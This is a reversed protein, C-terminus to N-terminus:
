LPGVALLDSDPTLWSTGDVHFLGKSGVQAARRWRAAQRHDDAREDEEANM